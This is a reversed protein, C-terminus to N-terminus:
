TAWLEVCFEQEASLKSFIEDQNLRTEHSATNTQSLMIFMGQIM